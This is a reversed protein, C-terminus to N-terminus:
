DWRAAPGGSREEAERRLWERWDDLTDVDQLERLRALSVGEAECRRETERLVGDTSWPVGELWRRVPRADRRFGILWYGGDRAPGVVMSHAALARFGAELDAPGMDPCDAGVVLIEELGADFAQEVARELRAGLDGPGQAHLLWTAQIGGLARVEAEADDPTFRLEVGPFQRVAALSRSLLVRYIAAAAPADTGVALRTKVEGARPSKLFVIVRRESV